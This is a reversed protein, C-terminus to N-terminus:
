PSEHNVQCFCLNLTYKIKLIRHAHVPLNFHQKKGIFIYPNLFHIFSLNYFSEM